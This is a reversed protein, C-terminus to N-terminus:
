WAVPAVGSSWAVSTNSHCPATATNSANSKVPEDDERQTQEPERCRHPASRVVAPAHGGGGNREDAGPEGGGTGNQGAGGVHGGDAHEGEDAEM